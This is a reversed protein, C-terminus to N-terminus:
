DANHSPNKSDLNCARAFLWETSIRWAHKNEERQNWWNQCADFDEDRIPVKESFRKQEKPLPIEYYWVEKTCPNQPSYSAHDDVEFFLISTPIGVYPAFVGDPLRVITHLRFNTLLRRRTASASSSAESLLRNALVIACRGGPRKLAAM